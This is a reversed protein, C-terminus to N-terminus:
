GIRIGTTEQSREYSPTLGGLRWGGAELRWGGAEVRVKMGEVPTELASVIVREGPKVGDGLFVQERDGRLVAIDRFRLQNEQDVVLVRYAGRLASRPLGVVDRRERGEIEAQVFLGVALPPAGERYGYPDPVQAIAYLIGTQDDFVGETRVIEGQWRYTRGGLRASLRVGPRPGRDAADRYSLPLAVLDLQESTVPLRVEAVDIGYIRALSEGATVYQGIDAKKERVRGAFPARLECRARKLRAEAHDAEAAALKARREELHPKRLVYDSAGGGDGLAQWERAAQEAEAQERLLEKRAEAVRAQMKTVALDYDRPDITLLVEGKEFFGAAAFSPHVQIIKGAVESVLNIETRPAVVGQSHVNLRVVEPSATVVEVVPLEHAVQKEEVAPKATIIAFAGLVGASLILIPLLVKFVRM